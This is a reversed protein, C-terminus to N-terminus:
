TDSSNRHLRHCSRQGRPQTSTRTTSCKCLMIRTAGQQNPPLTNPYFVYITINSNLTSLTAVTLHQLLHFLCPYRRTGRHGAWFIDGSITKSYFDKDDKYKKETIKLLFTSQDERSTHLQVTKNISGRGPFAM